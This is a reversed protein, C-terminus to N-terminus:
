YEEHELLSSALVEDWERGAHRLGYMSSLMQCVLRADFRTFQPLASPMRMHLYKLVLKCTRKASIASPGTVTATASALCFRMLVNAFIRDFDVGFQMM